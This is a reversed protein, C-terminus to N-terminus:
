KILEWIVIGAAVAVNLSEANKTMPITLKGTCLDITESTIGNGENGFIVASKESFINDGGLTEADSSPVAAYIKYGRNVLESVFGRFDECIKINLRFVAGMSGRLVKPNYIDCSDGSIIVDKVGLADCTRFISGLNSPNQINELMVLKDGHKEDVGQPISMECICVVGQPADTDSILKIIDEITEFSNEANEMLSDIIKPFKERCKETFFVTKFKLGSKLADGCLRVGELLFLKEKKRFSALSLLKKAYKINANSKSSIKDNM